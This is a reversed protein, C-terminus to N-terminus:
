YEFVIMSISHYNIHMHFFKKAYFSRYFIFVVYQTFFKLGLIIPGLMLKSNLVLNNRSLKM